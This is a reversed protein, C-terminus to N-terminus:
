FAAFKNIAVDTNEDELILFPVNGYFAAWLNFTSPPGIIYDCNSLSYLDVISHRQEISANINKRYFAENVTENSCIFFCCSKNKLEMENQLQMMKRLYIEDSFYYKGDNWTKYDGRRIHVGIVYDFKEKLKMITNEAVENYICKPKFIKILENRYKRLNAHDKFLWGKAFVINNIAINKFTDNSLEYNTDSNSIDLNIITSFISQLNSSYRLIIRDIVKFPTIKIGINYGFYYNNATSEFYEAYDDFGPNFVKYNNDMSNAIFFSFQFLRNCLQGVKDAIIVM